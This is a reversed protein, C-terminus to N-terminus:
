VDVQAAVYVADVALLVQGDHVSATAGANWERSIWRGAVREHVDIQRLRHSVIVIATLGEIQTYASLKKRRDYAETRDSTVEVVITPNLLTDKPPLPSTEPPQCRVVIDPYARFSSPDHGVRLDSTTVHCPTEAFSARLLAAVEAILDAHELTGGAMAVLQGDLLEFRLESSAEVEAYEDLGYSPHLAEVM